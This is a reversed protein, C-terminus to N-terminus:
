KLNSPKNKLLSEWLSKNNENTKSYKTEEIIEEETAVATHGVMFDKARRKDGGM